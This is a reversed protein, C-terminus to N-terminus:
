FYLGVILFICNHIPNKQNLLNKLPRFFLVRPLIIVDFLFYYNDLLRSTYIRNGYTLKHGRAKLEKKLASAVIADRNMEDIHFYIEM